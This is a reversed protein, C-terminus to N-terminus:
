REHAASDSPDDADILRTGALQDGLTRYWPDLWAYLFGLGLSAFAAVSGVARLTVRHAEPREGTVAIVRLRAFHQGITAGSVLVAGAEYVFWVAAACVGWVWAPGNPAAFREVSAAGPGAAVELAALMAAAGGALLTGVLVVDVGLAVCRRVFGPVGPLEIGAAAAAQVPATGPRTAPHTNPAFNNWPFAAHDAVPAAVIASAEAHRPLVLDGSSTPGGRNAPPLYPSSLRTVQGSPLVPKLEAGGSRELDAVAGGLVRAPPQTPGIGALPDPLGVPGRGSSPPAPKEDNAAGPRSAAGSAVRRGAAIPYGCAACIVTTPAAPAGCRPCPITNM